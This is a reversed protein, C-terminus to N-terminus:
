VDIKLETAMALLSPDHEIRTSDFNPDRTKEKFWKKWRLKKRKENRYRSIYWLYTTNCVFTTDKTGKTPDYNKQKALANIVAEQTYDDLVDAKCDLNILIRRCLRLLEDPRQWITKPTPQPSSPTSIREVM